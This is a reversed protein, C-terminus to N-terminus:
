NIPFIHDGQSQNKGQVRDTLVSTVPILVLSQKKEEATVQHLIIFGVFIDLLFTNTWRILKGQAGQKKQDDSSETPLPLRKNEERSTCM